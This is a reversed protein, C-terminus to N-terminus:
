PLDVKVRGAEISASLAELPPGAGERREGTRGDFRCGHWPCVVAGSELEGLHLPLASGPCVNRYAAVGDGLPVLLLPFNGVLTGFLDQGPLDDLATVDVRRPGSGGDPESGTGSRSARRRGESLRKELRVLNERPVVSLDGTASGPGGAELAGPGVPNGVDGAPSGADAPADVPRISGTPAETSGDEGAVELRVFGPLREVLVREIGGRLTATSSPCGHCAGHLRVTVVGEDVDVLEIEGGHSRALPRVAELAAEARGREDVLALDYLLFLNSVVPDDLARGFRERDEALLEAVRRLGEAHVRQIGEVLEVVAELVEPPAGAELEALLGNLRESLADIEERKM